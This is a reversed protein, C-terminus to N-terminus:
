KAAGMMKTLPDKVAQAWIEYGKPGPHLRDPMVDAPINGNADLFGAGIDLYQVRNGDHLKSIVKNVDAITARVPDGAYGRPFIGLLLIKAQPFSNQLALVVAGVGEAIEGATNRGANNTGIMLMIARPSFGKGEGDALRYLVGQTTDGAIGFNAVKWQGFYKDLVAKGANAGTENRWFDTISDGMFLLEANGQKAVELNAQHKGVHQGSLSPVIASNTPAPPRIEVISGYKEFLARTAPKAKKVMTTLGARMADVEAATPRVMAVAAPVPAPVAPVDTPNPIAGFGGGPGGGRPAGPAAGPGQAPAQAMAAGALFMSLLLIRAGTARSNIRLM